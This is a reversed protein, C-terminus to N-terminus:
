RASKGPALRRYVTARSVGLEAAIEPVPHGQARLREAAAVQDDDLARPRGVGSQTHPSRRQRRPGSAEDDLVALSALIGVVLAGTPDNTDLGERLSRLGISRGTLERASALVEPVTRGLRDLAVVVTTDGPRAYALLAAWGPREVATSSTSTARDSYIRPPDIGAATLTDLQEALRDSSRGTRAYGLQYGTPRRHATM